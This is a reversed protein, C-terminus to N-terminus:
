NAAGVNIDAMNVAQLNFVKLELLDYNKSNEFHGNYKIDLISYNYHNNHLSHHQLRSDHTHRKETPM